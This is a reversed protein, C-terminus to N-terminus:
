ERQDARLYPGTVYAGLFEFIFYKTDAPLDDLFPALRVAPTRARRMWCFYNQLGTTWYLDSFSDGFLAM